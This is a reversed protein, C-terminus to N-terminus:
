SRDADTVQVRSVRNTNPAWVELCPNECLKAGQGLKISALCRGYILIGSGASWEVALVM